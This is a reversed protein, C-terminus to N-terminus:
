FTVNKIYNKWKCFEFKMNIYNKKWLVFKLYRNIPPPIEIIDVTM